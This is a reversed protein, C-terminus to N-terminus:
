AARVKKRLLAEIADRAAELTARNQKVEDPTIEDDDELAISLALAAKLVKNQRIRDADSCPRSEHCLADLRGTFRGNWERKARAFAIVSMKATGDAYKAAQVDSVGLVAAMDDWTLRDTAKITALEGGIAELVANESFVPRNGVITRRQTM